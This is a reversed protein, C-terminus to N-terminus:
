GGILSTLFQKFQGRTILDSEYDTLTDLAEDSMTFTDEIILDRYLSYTNLRDLVGQFDLGITYGEKFIKEEEKIIDALRLLIETKEM